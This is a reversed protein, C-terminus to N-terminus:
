KFVRLLEGYVTVVGTFFFWHLVGLAISAAASMRRTRNSQLLEVVANFKTGDAEKLGALYSENLTKNGQKLLQKVIFEPSLHESANLMKFMHVHQDFNPKSRGFLTRLGEIAMGAALYGVTPIPLGLTFVQIWALPAPTTLLAKKWSFDSNASAFNSRFENKAEALIKRQEKGVSVPLATPSGVRALYTM